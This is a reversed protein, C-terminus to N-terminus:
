TIKILKNRKKIKTCQITTILEQSDLMSYVIYKHGTYTHITITHRAYAIYSIILMCVCMCVGCACM